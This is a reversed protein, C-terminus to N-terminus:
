FPLLSPHFQAPFLPNCCGAQLRGGLPPLALSRVQQAEARTQAGMPGWITVRRTLGPRVGVLGVSVGMLAHMPGHVCVGWARKVWPAGETDGDVAMQQTTFLSYYFASEGLTSVLKKM